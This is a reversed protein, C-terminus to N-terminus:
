MVVRFTLSGRELGEELERGLGTELAKDLWGAPGTDSWAVMGGM